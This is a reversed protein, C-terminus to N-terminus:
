KNQYLLFIYIYKYNFENSNSECTPNYSCIYTIRIAGNGNNDSTPYVEPDEGSKMKIQNFVLLSPHYRTNINEVSDSGKNYLVSECGSCGSVYSSGGAGGHQINTNKMEDFPLANYGGYYGGGCGGSSGGSASGLVNDFSYGNEGKGFIGQSQTGGLAFQNFSLGTLTGGHGGNTSSSQAGGGGAAVIIRSALSANNTGSILRIDTAGGGAASEPYTNDNPDIGGDGGGNFGGYSTVGKVISSQDEGKGGIYLFFNIGTITRLIGSVFAGKGGSDVRLTDKNTERADGGNAGWLEFKYTGRELYLSIPSCETSSVCPYPFIAETDTIVFKSEIVLQSDTQYIFRNSM